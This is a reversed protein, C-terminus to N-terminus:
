GPADRMPGVLHQPAIGLALGRQRLVGHRLGHDSVVLTDYGARTMLVDAVIAGALITAAREPALGPISTREVISRAALDACQARVVRRTLSSGHVIDARYSDLRAAMAALTTLTGGSGVFPGETGGAGLRRGILASESLADFIAARLTAVDKAPAPDRELYRETLVVSGLPLSIHDVPRGDRGFVIETSGGGIDVSLVPGAALGLGSVAGEFGLEAERDASLIEVPEGIVRALRTAFAPGDTAGRFARTGVAWLHEAGLQRSRGALESIAEFTRDCSRPDLPGGASLGEALRTIREVAALERWGGDGIEAVLLQVSHSGIDLVAIRVSM